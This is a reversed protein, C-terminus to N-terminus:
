SVLDLYEVFDGVLEDIEGCTCEYVHPHESSEWGLYKMDAGCRGCIM